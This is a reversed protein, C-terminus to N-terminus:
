IIKNAMTMKGWIVVRQMWSRWVALVKNELQAPGPGEGVKKRPLQFM